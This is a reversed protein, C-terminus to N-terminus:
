TIDFLFCAHMKYGKRASCYYHVDMWGDMMGQAGARQHGICRQCDEEVTRSGTGALQTYSHRNPVVGRYHVVSCNVLISVRSLGEM